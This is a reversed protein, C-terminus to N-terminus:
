LENVRFAIFKIVLIMQIWSLKLKESNVKVGDFTTYKSWSKPATSQQLNYIGVLEQTSNAICM